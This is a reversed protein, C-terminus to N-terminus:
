VSASDEAFSVWIRRLESAGRANLEFPMPTWVWREEPPATLGHGAFHLAADALRTRPTEAALRRVESNFTGIWEVERSVDADDPMRGTGDTPDIVTTILTEARPFKESITRLVLTLRSVSTEVLSAPPRPAGLMRLLDDRGATLTILMPEDSTELRHLQYALVSVTTAGATALHDSPFVGPHDLLHASRFALRPRLTVLDRGAFEPWLADDNRHLLAVAGLGAPLDAARSDPDPDGSVDKAPYLDASLSDGLALLRTYPLEITHDPPEHSPRM